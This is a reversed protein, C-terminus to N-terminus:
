GAVDINDKVAFPIGFLPQDALRAPSFAGLEGARAPADGLAVRTIWIAPRQEQDMLAYLRELLAAPTYAGSAYSAHVSAIDLSGGNAGAAAGPALPSTINASM